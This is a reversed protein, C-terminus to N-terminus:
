KAESSLKQLVIGSFFSLFGVILLPMTYYRLPYNIIQLYNMSSAEYLYSFVAFVLFTGSLLFCVRVYWKM